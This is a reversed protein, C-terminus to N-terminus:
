HASCREDKRLAVALLRASVASRSSRMPASPPRRPLARYGRCRAYPRRQEGRLLRPWTVGRIPPLPVVRRNSRSWHPAEGHVAVSPLGRRRLYRPATPPRASAYDGEGADRRVGARPRRALFQHGAAGRRDRDAAGVGRADRDILRANEMAIVAQAAFNQLLAIQKDSFPRVERRYITITGLLAEDKRLAVVLAHPRRRSRGARSAGPAAGTPEDERTCRRISSSSAPWRDPSRRAPVRGSRPRRAIARRTGRCGASRSPTFTGTM